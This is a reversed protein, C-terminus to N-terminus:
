GAIKNFHRSVPSPPGPCTKAPGETWIPSSRKAWIVKSVWARGFSGLDLELDVLQGEAALGQALQVAQHNEHLM